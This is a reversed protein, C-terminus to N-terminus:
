RTWVGRLSCWVSWSNKPCNCTSLMCNCLTLLQWQYIMGHYVEWVYAFIGRMLCWIILQIDALLILHGESTINQLHILYFSPPTTILCMCLYRVISSQLLNMGVTPILNVNMVLQLVVKLIELKSIAQSSKMAKIISVVQGDSCLLYTPDEIIVAKYYFLYLTISWLVRVWYIM